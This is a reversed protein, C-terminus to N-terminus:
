FDKPLTSMSQKQPVFGDLFRYCCTKLTERSPESHLSELSVDSDGQPRRERGTALMRHLGGYLSSSVYFDM